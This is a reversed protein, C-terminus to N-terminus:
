GLAHVGGDHPFEPQPSAAERSRRARGHLRRQAVRVLPAFASRLPMREHIMLYGLVVTASRSIGAACHVVVCGKKKNALRGKHIFSAAERLSKSMKKGQHEDDSIKQYYYSITPMGHGDFEEGIAAIHTCGLRTLEEVNEAGRYNTLYLRPMIESLQCRDVVLSEEPFFPPPPGRWAM